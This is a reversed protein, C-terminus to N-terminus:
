KCCKKMEKESCHAHTANIKQIQKKIYSRKTTKAISNRYFFQKVKATKQKNTEMM